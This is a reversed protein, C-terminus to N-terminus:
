PSLPLQALPPIRPRIGALLLELHIVARFWSDLRRRVQQVSEWVQRPLPLAYLARVALLAFVAGTPLSLCLRSTSPREAPDPASPSPAPSAQPEDPLPLLPRRFLHLWTMSLWVMALHHHFGTWSRGQYDGLGVEQKANEYSREIIPRRHACQALEDLTASEPGTLVYQKTDDSAPDLPRELLLWLATGQRDKTAPWVRVAAFERELIRGDTGQRYPVGRWAASPLAQRVEAATHLYPRVVPPKRPRGRGSYAPAEPTPPLPEEPLRVTFTSKIGLCYAWGQADLQRMLNLEGYGPDGYIRGITLGWGAVRRLLRLALEPKTQFPVDDPIRAQKRRQADLAWEDEPLYLQGCLPLDYPDVVGHLTVTVQGNATKGVCGLYQRAVGVSLKGQKLVSVEDIVIDLDRDAVGCATRFHEVRERDLDEASWPSRVLFDWVGQQTAGPIGAEMTEGNKRGLNSLLGLFYLMAQRLTSRYRFVRQFRSLYQEVEAPTTISVAPVDQKPLKRKQDLPQEPKPGFRLARLQEERVFRAWADHAKTEM